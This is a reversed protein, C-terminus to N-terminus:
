KKNKSLEEVAKKLQDLVARMERAGAERATHVERMARERVEHREHEAREEHAIHERMEHLHHNEIAEAQDHAGAAHLHRIAEGLHFARLMPAAAHPARDGDRHPAPRTQATNRRLADAKAKAQASAGSKTALACKPCAPKADKKDTKAVPKDSKPAVRITLSRVSATNKAPEPKKKADDKKPEPKKPAPKPAEKKPEPKKAEPKQDKANDKKPLDKDTKAPVPKKSDDDKKKEHHDAFALTSLGFLTTLALTALTTPKNTKM